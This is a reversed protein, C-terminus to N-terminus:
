PFGVHTRPTGIRGLVVADHGHAVPALDIFRIVSTKFDAVIALQREADIVLEYAGDFGPVISAVRTPQTGMVWVARGDFCTAVLYDQGAMTIRRMRSPGFGVDDVDVIAANGPIFPTGNQDITIVSEPSRSLVYAYRDTSSFAVDRTDFGTALGDLFVSPAAFAQSCAEEQPDVFVGVRALVRTARTSVPSATSIWALGSSPELEANIADPPLGTLIHTRVPERATGLATSDLYLVATSGDGYPTGRTVMLLADRAADAPNGTLTDLRMAVLGTPDGHLSVDRGACGTDAITHRRRDSCRFSGSAQECAIAGTTDDIDIWTLDATGRTPIYFRDGQPSRVISSAFSDIWVEAGDHNPGSGAMVDLAEAVQCEINPDDWAAPNTCSYPHGRDPTSDPSRGHDRIDVLRRYIEDMDLSLITGQNYRADYNANVVLLFQSTSDQRPATLGLAIPFNLTAPVPAIGPNPIDCGVLAAAICFFPIWRGSM